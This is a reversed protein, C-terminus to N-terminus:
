WVGGMASRLMNYVDTMRRPATRQWQPGFHICVAQQGPALPHYGHMGAPKRRAFTSPEFALGENLVYIFDGFRPSTLGYTRREEETVLQGGKLQYLYSHIPDKLREDFVWVRLLNADSFYVYSHSCAQGVSAEINLTIGETVNVMGHDSIIFVHGDPHSTQYKDVLNAISTDLFDLHALYPEGSLGFTHGFGDLDPLPLLVADVQKIDNLASHYLARDRTGKHLQPLPLVKLQPFESFLSPHPYTHPNDLIHDGTLAFKDLHRLPINVLIRGPRYGQILLHQLGRNLIYPRFVTNLLPLVKRWKWGPSMEPDYTWEGLYGVDDPLLGAFLEAHINVSYGFGPNISWSETAAHLFPMQSLIHFPLSDVFIILIDNM